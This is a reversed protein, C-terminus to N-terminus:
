ELPRYLRWASYLFSGCLGLSAAIAAGVGLAGVPLLCLTFALVAAAGVSRTYRNGRFSGIPPRALKAFLVYGYRLAGPLLAWAGLRGEGYLIACLALFFFADVEQDFCHGFESASGLRRAIWGDLGDACLVALALGAAWADPLEPGMLWALVCLLRTLTIANAAGFQGSPTWQRRFRVILGLFSGGAIAAIWARDLLAGPIALAMLLAHQESWHRLRVAEATDDSM